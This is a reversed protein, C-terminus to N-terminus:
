VTKNERMAKMIRDYEYVPIRCLLEAKNKIVRFVVEDEIHYAICTTTDDLHKVSLNDVTGVRRLLEEYTVYNDVFLDITEDLSGDVHDDIVSLAEIISKGDSTLLCSTPMATDVTTGIMTIVFSKSDKPKTKTTTFVKYVHVCDELFMFGYGDESLNVVNIIQEYFAMYLKNSLYTAFM